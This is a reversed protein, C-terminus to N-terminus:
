PLVSLREVATMIVAIITAIMMGIMIASYGVSAIRENRAELEAKKTELQNKSRIKEIRVADSVAVIRKSGCYPCKFIEGDEDVEMIGGCDQCRLAITTFEKQEPQSAKKKQRTSKTKKPEPKPEPQANFVPANYTPPVYNATPAGCKYCFKVNNALQTGCKCCFM